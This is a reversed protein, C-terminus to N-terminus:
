GGPGFQTEIEDELDSNFPIEIEDELDSNFRLKMRWTRIAMNDIEDELDSNSSM